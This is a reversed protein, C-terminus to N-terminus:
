RNKESYDGDPRTAGPDDSRDRTTGRGPLTEQNGIEESLPRNTIGGANDADEEDYLREPHEDRDVRAVTDPESGWREGEAKTKNANQNPKDQQAM